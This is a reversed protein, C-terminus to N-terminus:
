CVGPIASTCIGPQAAISCPAGSLPPRVARWAAFLVLVALGCAVPVPVRIYGTILFRWWVPKARSGLSGLVSQELSPPAAPAQWEQLVEKLRADDHGFDEHPQM